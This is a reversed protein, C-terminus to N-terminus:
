LTIGRYTAVQSKIRAIQGATVDTMCSDNSYDMINDSISCTPDFRKNSQYCSVSQTWGEVAARIADLLVVPPPHHRPPHTPSSTVLEVADVKSHTTSVLGIDPKM